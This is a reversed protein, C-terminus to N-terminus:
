HMRYEQTRSAQSRKGNFNYTLKIDIDRPNKVNPAVLFTGSVAEGECMTLVDELYLVTQKWHTPRAKPGTSFGTPKHCKTFSVDFYAVLAHVYDSRQAILKFPASFSVDLSSIKEIDMTKLLQCNTVIQNQDVTDVLPELMAQKRVCSMDFGYVNNWFDIKDQKYDADEIACIYLSTRDPLVIGGPVLWKDRSFLVSNVMNEFLLFYGMWESVIVDVQTPLEIEEVKGKFLTIVNSYGNAKIIEIATDAMISCEVAYVHKAGIKACFLSLIGTGAGVDLVVKDKFLFANQYIANQYTKTRVSDKLMEEHIGFHGYSDFYYDASTHDSVGTDSAPSSVMTISPVTSTNNSGDLMTSENSDGADINRAKTDERVDQMSPPKSKRRGMRSSRLSSSLARFYFVDSPACRRARPSHRDAQQWVRVLVVPGLTIRM